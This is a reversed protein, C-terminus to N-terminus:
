KTSKKQFDSEGISRKLVKCMHPIWDSKPPVLQSRNVLSGEPPWYLIHGVIWIEPSATVLVNGNEITESVCFLKSMKENIINVDSM